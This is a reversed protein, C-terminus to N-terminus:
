DTHKKFGGRAGGTAVADDVDDDKSAVVTMIGNKKLDKLSRYNYWGANEAFCALVDALREPPATRECVSSAVHLTTTIFV